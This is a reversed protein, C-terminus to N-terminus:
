EKLKENIKRIKNILQKLTEKLEKVAESSYKCELNAKFEFL